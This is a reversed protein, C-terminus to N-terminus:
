STQPVRKLNGMQDGHVAVIRPPLGGERGEEPVEVRAGDGGLRKAERPGEAEAARRQDQEQQKGRAPREQEGGVFRGRLTGVRRHHGQHLLHAEAGEDPVHVVPGCAPQHPDGREVQQADEELPAVQRRPAHAPPHPQREEHQHQRAGEGAIQEGPVLEGVPGHGDAGAHQLVHGGDPCTRTRAARPPASIPGRVSVRKKTRCTAM